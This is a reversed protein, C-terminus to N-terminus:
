GFRRRAWEALSGRGPRQSAAEAEEAFVAAARELVKRNARKIRARIQTPTYPAGDRNGFGRELMIEALQEDNPTCAITKICPLNGRAKIAAPDLGNRMAEEAGLVEVGEGELRDAASVEGPVRKYGLPSHQAELLAREEPTLAAEVLAYAAHRALREMQGWPGRSDGRVRKGNLPVPHAGYFEARDLQSGTASSATGLAQRMRLMGEVFARVTAIKDRGGIRPAPPCDVGRMRM